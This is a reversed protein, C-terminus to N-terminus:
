CSQCFNIYMHISSEPRSSRSEDTITKTSCLLPVFFSTKWLNNRYFSNLWTCTSLSRLLLYMYCYLTFSSLIPLVKNSASVAELVEAMLVYGSPGNFFCLIGDRYTSLENSIKAPSYHYFVSCVLESFIAIILLPWCLLLSLICFSSYFIWLLLRLRVGSSTSSGLWRFRKVENASGATGASLKWFCEITADRGRFCPWGMSQTHVIPANSSSQALSSLLISSTSLQRRWSYKVPRTGRIMLCSTVGAALSPKKRYTSLIVESKTAIQELLRLLVLEVTLGDVHDDWFSVAIVGTHSLLVSM